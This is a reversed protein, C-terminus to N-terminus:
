ILIKLIHASHHDDFNKFIKSNHYKIKFKKSAEIFNSVFELFGERLGRLPDSAAIQGQFHKCFGAQPGSIDYRFGGLFHLSIRIKELMWYPTSVPSFRRFSLSPLM